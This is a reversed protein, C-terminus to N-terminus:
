CIRHAAATAEHTIKTHMISEADDTGLLLMKILTCMNM